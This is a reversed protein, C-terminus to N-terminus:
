PLIIEAGLTLRPSVPSPSHLVATGSTTGLAIRPADIPFLLDARAFVGLWRGPRAEFRGGLVPTAWVTSSARPDRVGSGEVRVYTAEINACPGLAFIDFPLMYAAFAGGEIMDIAASAGRDFQPSQGFAVIGQIGVRFRDIRAGASALVGASPKPLPGWVVAGGVGLEISPRGPLKQSPSPRTSPPSEKPSPTVADVPSSPLPSKEGRAPEELPSEELPSEEIAASKPPAIALAVVVAFGEALTACSVADIERADAVDGTRVKLALHFRGDEATDIKGHAVVTRPVTLPGQVLTEIRRRVFSADPCAPPADWELEVPLPAVEAEAPRTMSVITAIAFAPWAKRM